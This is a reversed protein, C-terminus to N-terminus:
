FWNLEYIEPKEKGADRIERITDLSETALKVADRSTSATGIGCNLEIQFEDKCIEIFDKAFIKFESNTVIWIICCAELTIRLCFNDPREWDSQHINKLWLHGKVQHDHLLVFLILTMKQYWVRLTLQSHLFDMCHLNLHMHLLFIEFIGTVNSTHVVDVNLKKATELAVDYM